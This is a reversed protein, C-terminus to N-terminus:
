APRPALHLAVPIGPVGARQGLLRDRAQDEVAGDNPHPEVALRGRDRQENDEAHARVALLHQERDLAHTALAGFGPAADEVVEDLAPQPPGCEENDVARRSEVLGDSGSPVAYRDLAAR